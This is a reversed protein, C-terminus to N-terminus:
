RQSTTRGSWPTWNCRQFCPHGAHQGGPRNRDNLSRYFNFDGLFIWNETDSITHGRFWTLFNSREPETCPGYVTTMKWFDSNHCSTFSLTIGFSHKELTVGQFVSSNWVVLIGGSAGVSPVFDFADFRRPAFKRVFSIDFM